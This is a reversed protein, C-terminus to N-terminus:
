APAPIFYFDVTEIAIPIIDLKQLSRCSRIFTIVATPVFDALQLRRHVVSTCSTILASTLEDPTESPLM